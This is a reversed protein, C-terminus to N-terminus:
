INIYYERQVYLYDHRLLLHSCEETDSTSPIHSKYPLVVLASEILDTNTQQNTSQPVWCYHERIWDVVVFNSHRYFAEAVLHVLSLLTTLQQISVDVLSWTSSDLFSFFLIHTIPNSYLLACSTQLPFELIIKKTLILTFPNLISRNNLYLLIFQDFCSVWRLWHM